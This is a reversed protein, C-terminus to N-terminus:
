SVVGFLKAEAEAMEKHEDESPFLHGYTDFTVQISGHGMREQVAKPLLGLGGASKANICWSAYWHRLAHFGTYKPEKTGPKVVGAAVVTPLLGRTLMNQHFEVGGETNPLVLGASGKPCALKWEKLTNVVIPPLPITRQGAESKPMGIDRYRDARQRVTLSAKALDVDEWRLGRLESARLGTFIAVVLLPRWRGKAAELIARAEQPTPIDVGVVLRRKARKESAKSSRKATMERVANRIVLGRDQSDALISGLSVTARKVMAASRGEARLTDQWQRIVPVALKNLRMKGMFPKIHHELHQKRQDLSTREMGAEAGTRLWLKGAEEVTVTASDAVHVGAKVEVSATAAFADADKKRAFTRLRRKGQADTYNAVWAEKVEGDKGAWTRKRVSM